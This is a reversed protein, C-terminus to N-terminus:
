ELKPKYKKDFHAIIKSLVTESATIRPKGRSDPQTFISKFEEVGKTKYVAVLEDYRYDLASLKTATSTSMIKRSILHKYTTINITVKPGLLHKQLAHSSTYSFESFDTIKTVLEQNFLKRLYIVDSLASHADYDNDKPLFTSVLFDQRHSALNTNIKKFMPITDMFGAVTKLFINEFGEQVLFHVLFRSDFKSNHAVLVVRRGNGVKKLWDFFDSFADALSLSPVVKDRFMLKGHRFTIHNVKSAMPNIRRVPKVYTSYPQGDNTIAAIELIDAKQTSLGGTELDFFVFQAVDLAEKIFESEDGSVKILELNPEHKRETKKKEIEKVVLQDSYEEIVELITKRAFPSATQVANLESKIPVSSPFSSRRSKKGISDKSERKEDTLDIEEVDTTLERKSQVEIVSTRSFYPSSISARRKSRISTGFEMSSFEIFQPPHFSPM